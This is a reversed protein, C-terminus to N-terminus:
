IGTQFDIVLREPAHLVTVTFPYEDDLGIAWITMGEWNETMRMELVHQVLTPFLDSEGQYGEGEMDQMWMGMRVLLTATGEISVFEDSEGLRVPDDVYEAAWGPFEGTGQLEIVVREFCPHSGARIDAGVLSSMLLPDTSGKAAADGVAPCPETTPAVTAPATTAPETTVPQTTSPATSGPTTDGPATTEGPVISTTSTDSSSPRDSSCAALLAVAALTTLLRNRM